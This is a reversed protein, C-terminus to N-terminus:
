KTRQTKKWREEVKQKEDDPIPLKALARRLDALTRVVPISM